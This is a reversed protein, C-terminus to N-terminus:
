PLRLLRRLVFILPVYVAIYLGLWTLDKTCGLRTLPTWFKAADMGQARHYLLRVNKVTGDEPKGTLVLSEPPYENGVIINMTLFTGNGSNAAPNTNASDISIRTGASEQERIVELARRVWDNEYGSAIRAPIGETSPDINRALDSKRISGADVTDSTVNGHETVIAVPYKGAVTPTHISWRIDHAPMLTMLFRDLDHLLEERTRRAAERLEWPQESLDSSKQWTARLAELAPRIAPISQVAPTDESLTLGRSLQLSVPSIHEGGIAAVIDVPTGAPPNWARPDVRKPMWLLSMLMPGLFIALPVLTAGVIRTRVSKALRLMTRSRPSDNPLRAARVLLQRARQKAVLLRRNDTLLRQGIMTLLAFVGAVAVVVGQNGVRRVVPWLISDLLTMTPDYVFRADLAFALGLFVTWCIFLVNRIRGSRREFRGPTPPVLYHPMKTSTPDEIEEAPGSQDTSDTPHRLVIGNHADVTILEHEKFLRTAEPLVVAPIGMERAVVAGHSLTGGCEMILGAAHMFLPTWNPDTTPCILIYGSGPEVADAPGMVIRAPGKSSGTSIPAAPIQKSTSPRVPVGLSDIDAETIFPSILLKSEAARLSRRQEILHLPAFGTNLADRLEELELLFVNEGIELRRGADLAMDRLLDYGMMLYSKGDERFPLYRHVLALKGAFKKRDGASLRASLSEFRAQSEDARKRLMQLPRPANRLHAAMAEVAEPREHWRPTALDLEEPARHGHRKLWDAVTQEGAAIEALGENARVTLDAHASVALTNALEDPDEEWFHESIFERLEKLAMAGILGPMSCKPSFDDLVMKERLNWIERWQEASLRSLDRKREESVWMVFEPIYDNILKSDYDHAIAALRRHIAGLKRGARLRALISGAPITPPGQAADPNSRLLDIDYKFPFNEFFMDPAKSLDMYIRGAILEVFGDLLAENSPCFGIKRYAAGFGGAGSMFRKIVSWTLPAPHPLTEAISHRLWDGRGQRKASRLMSRTRALCEEYLEADGLTTVSRSQLLYVRGEHVAWEIDQASRFHDMVRLGLQWLDHVIASNLCPKKQKDEPVDRKERTGPQIWVTKKSAVYSKVVGTARDLILIDPQVIGSVVAEGLGWSAEVLMEDRAATRPNATFLVGAVDAPVLDQVIVAMAVDAIGIEHERLYALARPSEISDWCRLVADILDEEGKIDLLTEYQGAMSATAMDEATASSRVAVSPSVITERYAQLIMNALDAPMGGKQKRRAYRYANTTVVFGGPVPFGASILQALNIAKGGCLLLDHCEYLPLLLHREM